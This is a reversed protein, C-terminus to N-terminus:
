TLTQPKPNLTRAAALVLVSQAGAAKLALAAAQVTSATTVVDDILGVAVGRVQPSALYRDKVAQMRQSRTLTKQPPHERTQKLWELRWTSNTRKAVVRALQQAPSFGNHALRAASAPIPVWASVPLRNRWPEYASAMLAGLLNALALQKHQKYMQILFKGGFEYDLACILADISTPAQQCSPCITQGSVSDCGCKPCLSRQQRSSFFDAQCGSCLHGGRAGLQCLPCRSPIRDLLRYRTTMTAHMTFADDM